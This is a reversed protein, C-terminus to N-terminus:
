RTDSTDLEEVRRQKGTDLTHVEFVWLIDSLPFSASNGGIPAIDFGVKTVSSVKGGRGSRLCSM